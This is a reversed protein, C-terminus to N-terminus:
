IRARAPIRNNILTDTFAEASSYRFRYNYRLIIKGPDVVVPYIANKVAAPQFYLIKANWLLWLMFKILSIPVPMFKKAPVIDEVVAYSDPALNFVGEIERDQVILEVLSVLDDSHIFQLKNQRCSSPLWPFRILLSAVSKPKDFSPGIVTCIRLLVIRLDDRVGASCYHEEVKRKNIAYRSKGPRLTDSETIWLRNDIHAGYAMSSSSFILQRVSATKESAELINEAGCIDIENERKRNRVRNFSCALHIVNTPKEEALISILKERDTVSCLHFRYREPPFHGPNEKIDIGVVYIGRSILYDILMRGLTGSSGTILVKM